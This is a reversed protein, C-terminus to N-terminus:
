NFRNVAHSGGSSMLNVCRWFASLNTATSLIRITNSLPSSEFITILCFFGFPKMSPWDGTRSTKWIDQFTDRKGLFMESSNLFPQMEAKWSFFGQQTNPYFRLSIFFYLWGSYINKTLALAHTCTHTQASDFPQIGGLESILDHHRRSM